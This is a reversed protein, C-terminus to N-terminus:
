REMDNAAAVLITDPQWFLVTYVIAPFWGICGAGCAVMCSQTCGEHCYVACIPFLVKCCLQPPEKVGTQDARPVVATVHEAKLPQELSKPKKSKPKKSKQKIPKPM